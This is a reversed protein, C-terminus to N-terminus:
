EIAMELLLSGSDQLPGLPNKRKETVHLNPKGGWLKYVVQGDKIVILAIFEWGEERTSRKFNLLDLLVNGYRKRKIWKLNVKYAKCLEGTDLCDRLGPALDEKTIAPTPMFRQMVDLYTLIEINPTSFPDFHLDKLDAITSQYPIIKDFSHKVEDFTQWPSQVIKASSPLLLSSCGQLLFLIFFLAIGTKRKTFTENPNAKETIRMFRVM